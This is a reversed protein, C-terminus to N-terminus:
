VKFADKQRDKVEDITEWIHLDSRKYYEIDNRKKELLKILFKQINKGNETKMDSNVILEYFVDEFKYKKFFLGNYKEDIEKETVIAKKEKVIDVLKGDDYDGMWKFRNLNINEDTIGLEEFTYSRILMSDQLSQPFVNIDFTFSTLQRTRKNFLAYLTFKNEMSPM